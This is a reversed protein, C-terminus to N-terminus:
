DFNNRYRLVMDFAKMSGEIEDRPFPAIERKQFGRRKLQRPGENEVIDLMTIRLQDCHRDPLDDAPAIDHGVWPRDIGM